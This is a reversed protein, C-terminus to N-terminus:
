TGTGLWNLGGTPVPSSRDSDGSDRPHIEPDQNRLNGGGARRPEARRGTQKRIERKYMELPFCLSLAGSASRCLGKSVETIYHSFYLPTNARQRQPRFIRRAPHKEDASNLIRCGWCELASPLLTAPRYEAFCTTYVTGMHIYKCLDCSITM